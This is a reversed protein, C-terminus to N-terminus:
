RFLRDISGPLSKLYTEVNLYTVGDEVTGEGRYIVVRDSIRGFRGEVAGCKVPDVLHRRQHATRYLSHKVECIICTDTADCRVMMDIEGKDFMLRSVSFGPGLARATESLVIEEMIRGRVSDLIRSVAESRVADSLSGFTPDQLVAEVLVKAQCFRMGPQIMLNREGRVWTGGEYRYESGIELVELAELYSRLVSLVNQSVPQTADRRNLIGLAEMVVGYMEVSDVDDSDNSSFDREIVEELFRHNFDEVVRNIVNTLEKSRYLDYLVGWLPSTPIRELSNQINRAIALTSYRRSSEESGFPIEDRLVAREVDLMGKRLTGGLEIYDDIDDTGILRSHERYPIVTTHVMVAEGYLEDDEAMWFGLSDTGSMVIRMGSRVENYFMSSCCLHFDRLKTAEDIFVTRYGMEALRSIDLEVDRVDYRSDARIFATRALEKDGMDLMAQCMMTSKGTYRLGYLVCVKPEDNKLYADLIGYCERREMGACDEARPKLCMGLVPSTRFGKPNVTGEYGDKLRKLEIQLECREDVRREVQELDEDRVYKCHVKGDEYWQLYTRVKGRITKRSIRGRPYEAIRAELNRIREETLQRDDQDM